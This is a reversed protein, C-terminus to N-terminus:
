QSPQSRAAQNAIRAQAIRLRENVAADLLDQPQDEHDAADAALRTLQDLGARADRIARAVSTMSVAPAAHGDAAVATLAGREAKALAGLANMYLEYVQRRHGTLKAADAWTHFLTLCAPLHRERHAQLSYRSVGYERAIETVNIVAHALRWDIESRRRDTCVACPRFMVGL